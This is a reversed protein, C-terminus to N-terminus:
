KKIGQMPPNSHSGDSTDDIVNVDGHITLSSNMHDLPHLLVTDLLLPKPESINFSSTVHSLLIPSLLNVRHTATNM